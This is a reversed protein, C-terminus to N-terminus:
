RKASDDRETIDGRTARGHVRIKQGGAIFEIDGTVPHGDFGAQFRWVIWRIRAHLSLISGKTKAATRSAAAQWAVHFAPRLSRRSGNRVMANIAIADAM